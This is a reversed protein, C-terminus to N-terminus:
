PAAEGASSRADAALQDLRKQRQAIQENIQDLKAQQEQLEHARTGMYEDVMRMIEFVQEQQRRLVLCLQMTMKFVESPTRLPGDRGLIQGAPVHEQEISWSPVIAMGELEPVDRMLKKAFEECRSFVEVYFPKRTTQEHSDSM